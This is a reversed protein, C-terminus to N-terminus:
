LVAAPSHGTELLVQARKCKKHMLTFWYEDCVNKLDIKNEKYTYQQICSFFYKSNFEFVLKVNACGSALSYEFSFLKMKPEELKAFVHHILNFFWNQYGNGIIKLFM